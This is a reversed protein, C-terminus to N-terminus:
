LRPYKYRRRGHLTKRTSCSRRTKKHQSYDKRFVLYLLRDDKDVIPLQNIKNDWIIDNAEKLTTNEPATILKKRPTM